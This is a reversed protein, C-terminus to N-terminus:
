CVAGDVVAGDAVVQAVVALGAVEVEVLDAVPLRLQRLTHRFFFVPTNESAHAGFLRFFRKIHSAPKPAKM